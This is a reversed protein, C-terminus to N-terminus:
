VRIRNFGWLGGSVILAAVFTPFVFNKGVARIAWVANVNDPSNFHLLVILLILLLSLPVTFFYGKKKFWLYLYELLMVAGFSVYVWIVTNAKFSKAITPVSFFVAMTVISQIVSLGIYKLVKM